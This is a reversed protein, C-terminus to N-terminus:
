VFSALIFGVALYPGFAFTSDQIQPRQKWTTRRSNESPRRAFFIALALLSALFCGTLLADTGLYLGCAATLKIDGGGLGGRRLTLLLMPISLVFFGAICSPILAPDCLMRVTALLIILLPFLNHIKRTAADIVATILLTFVFLFDIM